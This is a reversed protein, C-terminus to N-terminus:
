KGFSCLISTPPGDATRQYIMQPMAPRGAGLRLIMAETVPAPAGTFRTIQIGPQAPASADALNHISSGDAAFAVQGLEISVIERELQFRFMGTEGDVKLECHRGTSTMGRYTGTACALSGGGHGPDRQLAEGLDSLCRYLNPVETVTVVHQALLSEQRVLPTDANGNDGCGSFTGLACAVSPLSVVLSQRWRSLSPVAASVVRVPM